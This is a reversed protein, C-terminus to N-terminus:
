QCDYLMLPVAAAHCEGGYLTMYNKTMYLSLHVWLFDSCSAVLEAVINHKALKLDVALTIQCPSM